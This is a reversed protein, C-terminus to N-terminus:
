QKAKKTYNTYSENILFDPILKIEVQRNRYHIPNKRDILQSAGTGSAYIKYIDQPEVTWGDPTIIGLNETNTFVQRKLQTIITRARRDSLRILVDRDNTQPTARCVILIKYLDRRYEKSDGIEVQDDLFKKLVRGFKIICRQAEPKLQTWETENITEWVVYEPMMIRTSDIVMSQLGENVLMKRLIEQDKNFVRMPQSIKELEKNKEQLNFIHVVSLILFIFFLAAFIDTFSPWYNLDDRNKRFRM